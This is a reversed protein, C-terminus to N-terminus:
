NVNRADQNNDERPDGKPQISFSSRIANTKTLSIIISPIIFVVAFHYAMLVHVSKIIKIKKFFSNSRNQSKRCQREICSGIQWLNMVCSCQVLKDKYCKAVTHGSQNLESRDVIECLYVRFVRM